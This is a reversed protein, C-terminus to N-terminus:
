EGRREIKTEDVVPLAGTNIGMQKLMHTQRALLIRGARVDYHTKILLNALDGAAWILGSFVILRITDGVLVGIGVNGPPRDTWWVAFQVLALLLIIGAAVHLVIAALHLGRQPELDQQRVEVGSLEPRAADHANPEM